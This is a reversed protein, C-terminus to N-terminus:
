SRVAAPTAAAREVPAFSTMVHSQPVLARAGIRSSLAAQM